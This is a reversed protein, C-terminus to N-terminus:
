ICIGTGTRAHALIRVSGLIRVPMDMVPLPFKCTKTGVYICNITYEHLIINNSQYLLFSRIHHQRSRFYVFFVSLGNLDNGLVFIYLYQHCFYKIRDNLALKNNNLFLLITVCHCNIKLQM